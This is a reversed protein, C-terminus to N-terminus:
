RKGIEILKAKVALEYLEKGLDEWKCRIPNNVKGKGLAKHWIYWTKGNKTCSVLIRETDTIKKKEM